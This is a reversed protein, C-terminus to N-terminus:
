MSSNLSKTSCCKRAFRVQKKEDDDDDDDDENIGELNNAKRDSHGDAPSPSDEFCFQVRNRDTSGGRQRDPQRRDGM